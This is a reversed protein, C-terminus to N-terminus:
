AHSLATAIRAQGCNQGTQGDRDQYASGEEQLIVMVGVKVLIGAAGDAYEGARM